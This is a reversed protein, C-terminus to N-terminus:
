AKPSPRTLVRLSLNAFSHSPRVLNSCITACKIARPFSIDAHTLLLGLSAPPNKKVLLQFLQGLRSSLSRRYVSRHFRLVNLTPLVFVTSPTEYTGACSCITMELLSFDSHHLNYYYKLQTQSCISRHPRPSVSSSAICYWFRLPPIFTLALLVWYPQANSCFTRM